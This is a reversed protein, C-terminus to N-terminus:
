SAESERHGAFVPKSEPSGKERLWIGSLILVGMVLFESQYNQFSEFWFQSTTFYQWMTVTAEGHATQESSYARSGSWAHSVFSFLWLSFFLITLSHSYLRIAWRSGYRVIKPANTDGRHAFPDEDVENHKTLSKSEPSGSQFLKATLFIYFFMQFFESEWNEFIAEFFHGTTLYRLLTSTSEHHEQQDANFVHWGTVIQGTVMILFVAIVALSLGNKRLFNQM